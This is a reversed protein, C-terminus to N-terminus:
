GIFSNCRCLDHKCLIHCGCWEQWRECSGVLSSSQSGFPGFDITTWSWILRKARHFAAFQEPRQPPCLVSLVFRGSVKALAKIPPNSFTHLVTVTVLFLWQRWWFQLQLISQWLKSPREVQGKPSQSIEAQEQLMPLLAQFGSAKAYSGSTTTIYTRRCGELSICSPIATSLM